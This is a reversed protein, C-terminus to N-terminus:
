AEVPVAEKKPLGASRILEALQEPTMSCARVIGVIEADETEQIQRRLVENREQLKEIKETNKDLEAHLKSLKPNM